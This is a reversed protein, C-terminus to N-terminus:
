RMFDGIFWRGSSWARAAVSSNMAWWARASFTARAARSFFTVCASFTSAGGLLSQRRSRSPPIRPACNASSARPAPGPPRPTPARRATPFAPPCSSMTSATWTSSAAPTVRAATVATLSAGCSAFHSDVLDRWWDGADIAPTM